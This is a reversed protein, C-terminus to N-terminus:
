ILKHKTSLYFLPMSFCDAHNNDSQASSVNFQDPELSLQLTVHLIKKKKLENKEFFLFWFFYVTFSNM